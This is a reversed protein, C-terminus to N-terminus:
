KNDEDTNDEDENEDMQNDYRETEAVARKEMINDIEDNNVFPLKKLVTEDDLYQAASLVMQTEEAQNVITSRKFTPNDNIGALELVSQIFEIVCYEFDDTKSNLPEYAARIATAVTNGNAIAETDLAMADKYLDKELKELYKTRAEVPVDQTHPTAKAKGDADDVVAAHLTKLRQLFQALDIDDMGGANEIAWYILTADDVDNAFGSKILDYCDISPQWAKIRCVHDQNGWLPVIPFGSYNEGNVIETGEAESTRTNLIYDRKPKYIKLKSDDKHKIYETYGDLEYLTARLPKDESIQWFRVGAKLAGDEEDYLPAFELFEFVDIHDLNFFGFALGQTLASKGLKQLQTDFAKKKTGLKDKTAENEFTAGNGLLYQNEQTNFRNYFNSPLKHNATINDIVPRGTVTYLMKQYRMITVNEQKKYAEGYSAWKYDESSKHQNIVEQIFDALDDAKEIVEQLDQYTKIIIM